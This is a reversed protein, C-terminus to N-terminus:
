YANPVASVSTAWCPDSVVLASSNDLTIMKTTGNPAVLIPAPTHVIELHGQEIARELAQLNRLGGARNNRIVSGALDGIITFQEGADLTRGHPPLFGFTNRSGSSNVITTYLCSVDHMGPVGLLDGAALPGNSAFGGLGFLTTDFGGLLSV